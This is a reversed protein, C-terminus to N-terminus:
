PERQPWSSRLTHGSIDVVNALLRQVWSISVIYQDDYGQARVEDNHCISDLVLLHPPEDAEIERREVQFRRISEETPESETMKIELNVFKRRLDNHLRAKQATSIIINLISFFFTLGAFITSLTQFGGLLTGFTASGSVATLVSGTKDLWNYWLERRIHYRISRRVGFLLNHYGVELDSNRVPDTM